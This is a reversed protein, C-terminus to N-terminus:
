TGSGAAENAVVVLGRGGPLKPADAPPRPRPGGRAGPPAPGRGGWAAGGGLAGGAVSGGPPPVGAPVGALAVVSARPALAGAWGSRRTEPGAGVAFAAASAAHGSPFSTTFPQRGLRRIVPVLDLAPRQRRVAYKVLTNVTLSAVALSAAGRLAAKRTTRGGAA